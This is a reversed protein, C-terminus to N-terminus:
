CSLPNNIQYCKLM